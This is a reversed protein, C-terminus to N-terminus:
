QQTMLARLEAEDHQHLDGSLDVTARHITGAFRFPISYLDGDVTDFAAYGCSFGVPSMRNTTTFPYKTAAVLRGDIHLTATGPSGKGSGLDPRGTPSFEYRLEHDGPTLVESSAVMFRKSGVWNYVHQLRGELVMFAYGGHRGGHTALIGDAAGGAVDVDPITVDAAISYPRNYIRPSAGFYVPAADPYWVLQDRPEAITPRATLLRSIGASALPFVGYREAESYWLAKMEALKEPQEAALNHTEAPDSGVDYLEWGDADLDDLMETTLTQGFRRGKDAAEAFSPGPVPCNAKWGDDFISRSGFMEFYQTTHNTKAGADAFTHAFSTGHIPSQEVGRIQEPPELGLADLLTPLIDTVHAYQTRVEGHEAIGAPWSVICPDSVGGRYTERKWRRFPTNGAWAWGWSYHPYTDPGGWRDFYESNKELTEPVGNFFQVENFTGHLGGEASAGNDSMVVVITNDLEGLEDIFDIVRGLHHDSQEIFGAYVEMERAYMRRAEDSLSDWAPVDLDRESLVTDEPIIGEAIQQEFVVRRYEDWGADFRGAYKEIWEPEVHHPSHGAGLAYYLLFPKDPAHVHADKIFQIAHDALDINLHYGDEPTAPPPIQHNDYVLDPLWHDTSGALFGYFREFGRGLPWRNFPGATTSETPATLHWKGIGFTNYGHELLMEPLFGHEFGVFSNHAPFGLSTETIASLGLSHHNRGTMLCGRTPTCLATTHFNSYRLGRAAIRGLTPTECLGGFPSFQGFGVDDWLVVMVNPSGAAARNPAPWASSSEELTRGVTGPFPTGPPYEIIQDQAVDRVTSPGARGRSRGATQGDAMVVVRDAVKLAVDMDYEILLLTADTELAELLEILRERQGRSLGSAPEDLMILDPETVLAIGIERQRQQRHSLDGVKRDLEKRLWV